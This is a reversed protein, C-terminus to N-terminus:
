YLFQVHIESYERLHKVNSHDGVIRNQPKGLKLEKSSAEAYKMKKKRKKGEEEERKTLMQPQQKTFRFASFFVFVFVLRRWHPTNLKYSKEVSVLLAFSDLLFNM